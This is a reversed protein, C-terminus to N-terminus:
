WTYSVGAVFSDQKITVFKNYSKYTIGNDIKSPNITFSRNPQFKWYMKNKSKLVVKQKFTKARRPFKSENSNKTERPGVITFGYKIKNLVYGNITDDVKYHKYLRQSVEEIAKTPSNTYFEQAQLMVPLM